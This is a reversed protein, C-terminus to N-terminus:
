PTGSPSSTSPPTNAPVVTAAQNALAPKRQAFMWEMAGHPGYAFHWSEHGVRDLATYAPTGGAQRIAEILRTSESEPIVQDATGHFAWIPLAHLREVVPMDIHSGGGCIPVMAAFEEPYELDAQLNGYEGM